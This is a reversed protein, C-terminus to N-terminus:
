TAITITSTAVNIASTAVNVASAVVTIAWKLRLKQKLIKSLKM